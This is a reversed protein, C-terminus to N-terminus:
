KFVDKEPTRATKVEVGLDRLAVPRDFPGVAINRV